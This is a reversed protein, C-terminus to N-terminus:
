PVQLVQIQFGTDPLRGQSIKWLILQAVLYDAVDSKNPVNVSMGYGSVPDRMQLTFTM